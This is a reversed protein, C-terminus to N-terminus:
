NVASNEIMKDLLAKAANYKATVKENSAFATGDIQRLCFYLDAPFYPSCKQQIDTGSWNYGKINEDGYEDSFVEDGKVFNYFDQDTIVLMVNGLQIESFFRNSQLSRNQVDDLSGTMNYIDIKVKGDGNVDEAYQELYERIPEVQEDMVYTDMGLIITYDARTKFVVQVLFLIILGAVCIGAIIMWKYYYWYHGIKGKLDKPIEGYKESM